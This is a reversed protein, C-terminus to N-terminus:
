FLASDSDIKRVVLNSTFVLAFGVVAQFCSVASSIGVDGLIRLSRYIYTDLVDKTAYLAGMDRTLQFFLGFDSYMIKGIQLLVMCIVVGRIMPLTIHVTMQWKSAGDLRAAEYYTEDVGIIAAYYIVSFYGVNKWAYMFTLIYPWYQSRSYWPINKVGLFHLVQNLIGYDHHLYAYLLYGAVVWSLFYPFFLITQVIKITVRKRIENIMFAVALSLILTTFIFLLNLGVTNRMVIWADNTKFFFKFNEFGVWESGLFGKDYRFDKFAIILGAIPLYSFIFLIISAPASMGCLSITRQTSAKLQKKPKKNTRDKSPLFHEPLM